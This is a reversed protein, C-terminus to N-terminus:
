KLRTRTAALRPIKKSETFGLAQLLEVRGAESLCLFSQPPHFGYATALEALRLPSPAPEFSGVRFVALSRYDYAYDRLESRSLGGVDALALAESVPLFGFSEVAMRGILTSTPTGLYVFLYDPTFAKPGRKRFVAGIQNGRLSPEWHPGFSVVISRSSDSKGIAKLAFM